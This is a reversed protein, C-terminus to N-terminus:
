GIRIFLCTDFVGILVAKFDFAKSFLAEACLVGVCLGGDFFMDTEFDVIEYLGLEALLFAASAETRALKM